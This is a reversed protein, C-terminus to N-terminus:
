IKSMESQDELRRKTEGKSTKAKPKSGSSEVVKQQNVKRPSRAKAETRNAKSETSRQKTQTTGSRKASRPEAKVEAKGFEDQLGELQREAETNRPEREHKQLWKEYTLRDDTTRGGSHSSTRYGPQPWPRFPYDEERRAESRGRYPATEFLEQPPDQDRPSGFDDFPEFQPDARADRGTYRQGENSRQRRM